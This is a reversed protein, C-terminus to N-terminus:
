NNIADFYAQCLEVTLAWPECKDQVVKLVGNIGQDVYGTVETATYLKETDISNILNDRVFLMDMAIEKSAQTLTITGVPISLSNSTPPIHSVLKKKKSGFGYRKKTKKM